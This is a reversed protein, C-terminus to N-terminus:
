RVYNLTKPELMSISVFKVHKFIKSCAYWCQAFYEGRVGSCTEWVKQKASGNKRIQKKKPGWNYTVKSKEGLECCFYNFYSYVFLISFVESFNSLMKIAAM